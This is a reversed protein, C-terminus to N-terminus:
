WYAVLRFDRSLLNRFLSLILFQYSSKSGEEDFAEKTTTPNRYYGIMMTPSKVLLEGEKNPGVIEGTDVDILKFQFDPKVFGISDIIKCQRSQISAAGFESM